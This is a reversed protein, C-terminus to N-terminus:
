NEFRKKDATTSRNSRASNGGIENTIAQAAHRLSTDIKEQLEPTIRLSVSAIAISGIATGSQGFIPAATGVVDNEFTLLARSLGTARCAHWAKRVEEKSTPTSQTFPTFDIRDLLENQVDETQHAGIAIGSATAHWPLPSSPDVHVFLARNPYSIAVTVPDQGARVTGHATEGISETLVGLHSVIISEIPFSQERIQALHFPSLGIRYKRSTVDQEVFGNRELATLSRLTTAKDFGARRALDSLGLEPVQPSFFRLLSLAKDVTGMMQRPM